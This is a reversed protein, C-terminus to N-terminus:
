CCTGDCYDVPHGIASIGTNKHGPCSKVNQLNLIRAGHPGKTEVCAIGAARLRNILNNLSRRYFGAYGRAAGSLTSLSLSERGEIVNRQFSGKCLSLATQKTTDSDVVIWGATRTIKAMQKEEDFPNENCGTHLTAM